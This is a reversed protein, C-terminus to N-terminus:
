PSPGGDPEHPFELAIRLAERRSFMDLARDYSDTSFPLTHTVVEGPDILGRDICTVTEEWFPWDYAKQTKVALGKDMWQSLDVMMPTDNSEFLLVERAALILATQIGTHTGSCEIVTEPRSKGLLDLSRSDDASVIDDIGLQSARAMRNRDVEIGTVKRAGLVRLWLLAALGASGLGIIVANARFIKEGSKLLYLMRAFLDAPALAPWPRGSVIKLAWKEPTIVYEQHLDGAYSSLAVRDGPRLTEVDPGVEYVEGAGERGPFGSRCPYELTRDGRYTGKFVKWEHRGCLSTFRLRICVHGQPPPGPAPAEVIRVEGPAIVQLAKMTDTVSL